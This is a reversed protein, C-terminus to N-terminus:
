PKRRHQRPNRGKETLSDGATIALAKSKSCDSTRRIVQWGESTVILICFCNETSLTAAQKINNQAVLAQLWAVAGGVRGVVPSGADVVASLTL